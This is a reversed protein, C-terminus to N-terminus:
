RGWFGKALGLHKIKLFFFVTCLKRDADTDKRTQKFFLPQKTSHM